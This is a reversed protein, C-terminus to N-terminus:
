PKITEPSVFAHGKFGQAEFTRKLTESVLLFARYETERALHHPELTESNFRLRNFKMIQKTGPICVYTSNQHDVKSVMSVINVVMFGSLPGGTTMVNAPLLQVDSPCLKMVIDAARRSILPVMANNPLIDYARLMDAKGHFAFHPTGLDTPFSQGRLFLFRDPSRDRLYEGILEEPYEDPINWIFIM